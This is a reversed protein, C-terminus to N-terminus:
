SCPTPKTKYPRLQLFCDVVFPFLLALVVACEREWAFLHSKRFLAGGAREGQFSSPMRTIKWNFFSPHKKRISQVPFAQALKQNRLIKWSNLTLTWLAPTMLKPFFFVTVKNVCWYPFSESTLERNVFTGLVTVVPLPKQTIFLLLQWALRESQPTPDKGVNLPLVCYASDADTPKFELAPKELRLIHSFIYQHLRTILELM